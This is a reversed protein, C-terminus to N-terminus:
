PSSPNDEELLSPYKGNVIDKLVSLAGQETLDTAAQQGLSIAQNLTNVKGQQTTKLLIKGDPTGVCANLYMNGDELYAFAAIPAQCSGQLAKNIEREASVCWLTPEHEIQKLKAAIDHDDKRYEIALAGQGIAPIIDHELTTKIRDTLGMRILGAAALIIAHYQGEDLKRLRTQINGRLIKFRLHPYKAHLQTIRRLSSTGIIAGNPLDSIQAYDNSVFADFPNERAQIGGLTLASPLDVGVDKLSHVAIDAQNNLLAQELEKIFLGKGGIKSLSVDLRKDGLTTIGLLQTQLTPFHTKLTGEIFRAQWLALQSERTAIICPKNM